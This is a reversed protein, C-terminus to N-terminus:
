YCSDTEEVCGGKEAMVASTCDEARSLVALIAFLVILKNM